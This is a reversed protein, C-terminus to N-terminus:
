LQLAFFSVCVLMSNFTALLLKSPPSVSSLGTTNEVISECRHCRLVLNLFVLFFSLIKPWVQSMTAECNDVENGMNDHFGRQSKNSPVCQSPVNDPSPKRYFECLKLPIHIREEIFWWCEYCNNTEVPVLHFRWWLCSVCFINADTLISRRSFCHDNCRNGKDKELSLPLPSLQFLWIRCAMCFRM